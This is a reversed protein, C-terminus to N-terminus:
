MNYLFQKTIMFCFNNLVMMLAVDNQGSIINRDVIVFTQSPNNQAVFNGDLERVSEELLFPLTPFYAERCEENISTGTLNFKNFIWINKDFAHFLMM